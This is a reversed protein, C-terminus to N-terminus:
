SECLAAEEQEWGGLGHTDVCLEMYGPRTIIEVDFGYGRHDKIWNKLHSGEGITLWWSERNGRKYTVLFRWGPHYNVVPKQKKKFVM